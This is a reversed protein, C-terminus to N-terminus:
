PQPDPEPEPEPPVEPEPQPEPEPTPEPADDDYEFLEGYGAPTMARLRTGDVVLLHSPLAVGLDKVGDHDFPTIDCYTVGSPSKHVVIKVVPTLDNEVAGWIGALIEAAREIAEEKSSPVRLKQPGVVLKPQAASFGSLETM